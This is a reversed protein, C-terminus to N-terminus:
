AFPPTTGPAVVSSMVAAVAPPTRAGRGRRVLQHGLVLGVVITPLDQVLHILLGVALAADMPVGYTHAATAYALEFIGVNGPTVRIVLGLNVALLAVLSGAIPVPLHAARAVLHYSTLQFSWDLLTLPIAVALRRRTIIRRAIAITRRACVRARRRLRHRRERRRASVFAIRPAARRRSVLWGTIAVGAIAVPIARGLGFPLPVVVATACLFVVFGGINLLRELAVTTLIAYSRLGTARTMIVVRGAEGSSGVFLSNLTAGVFTARTVTALRPHGVARLCVLWAGAKAFLSLFHFGTALGLSGPSAQQIVALARAWQVHRAYLVGAAGLSAIALVM